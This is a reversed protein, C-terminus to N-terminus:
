ELTIKQDLYAVITKNFLRFAQRFASRVCPCFEIVEAISKAVKM